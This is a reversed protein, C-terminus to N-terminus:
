DLDDEYPIEHEDLWSVAAEKYGLAKFEFWDERLQFEDIANKFRRFSGKKHISKMLKDRILYDDLTYCFRQMMHHEDIEFRDPLPLFDSSSLVRQREKLLDYHWDNDDTLDGEELDADIDMDEGLLTVIEGSVRNLYARGSSPVAQLEDVLISLSIPIKSM